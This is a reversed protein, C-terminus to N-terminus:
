CPTLQITTHVWFFKGELSLSILLVFMSETTTTGDVRNTPGEGFVLIVIRRNDAHLSLSNGVGFIVANEGWECNPLM